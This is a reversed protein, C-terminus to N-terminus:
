ELEGFRSSIIRHGEGFKTGTEPDTKGTNQMSKISTQQIKM